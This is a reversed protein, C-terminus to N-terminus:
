PSSAIVAYVPRCFVSSFLASHVLLLLYSDIVQCPLELHFAFDDEVNERLDSNCFLLGVRARDFDIFGFLDLLIVLLMALRAGATARAATRRHILELGLDVQRV